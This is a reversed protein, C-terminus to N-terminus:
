HTIMYITLGLNAVGVLASIASWNIYRPPPVILNDGAYLMIRAESYERSKKSFWIDSLKVNLVFGNRRIIKVSKVRRVNEIGGALAIADVIDIPKYVQYRDPKNVYGIINIRQGYISVMYISVIPTPVYAKLNETIVSKFINITMGEIHIKGLIPYEISGDPLVRIQKSFEPHEMVEVSLVDGRQIIYETEVEITDIVNDSVDSDLQGFLGGTLFIILLLLVYKKM